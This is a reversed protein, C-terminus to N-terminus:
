KKNEKDKSLKYGTGYLVISSVLLLPVVLEGTNPVPIKPITDNKIIMVKSAEKEGITFKVGSGLKKYGTPAKVEWLYYDGYPLNTVEFKGDNDSTVILDKGEQQVSQYSDKIKRTVKFSAGELPKKDKDNAIKLFKFGGVQAKENVVKLEYLQSHDLSFDTKENVISYGDLAKIEKFYYHGYPLNAVNIQGNEDTYLTQGTKGNEDYVYNGILPVQKDNEKNYLEFAVGALSKGDQDVKSLKISARDKPCAVIKDVLKIQGTTDSINVIFRSSYTMTSSSFDNRFYLLGNELDDLLLKGNEYRARVEYPTFNADLQSQSLGQLKASIGTADAMYDELSYKSSIDWYKYVLAKDDAMLAIQLDKDSPVQIEISSSGAMVQRSGFINVLFVLALLYALVNM